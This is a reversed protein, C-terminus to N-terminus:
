KSKRVNVEDFTAILALYGDALFGEYGHCGGAWDRWDKSQGNPCFGQFEGSAFSQLMPYFIRRAAEVRGIQYLARITFVSFCATAGGNEYIQFGDSGDDKRPEGFRLGSDGGHISYDGPPIPVLNGPLGLNFNTYGVQEMKRLLNDMIRRADGEDVLGYSIAVGNVFTFWYDHLKGDVSRWGALVGTQPNLFTPLYAARLRAAKAAFFEADKRKGIHKAVSSFMICARFTLANAYADEHGFNITDWWNAPRLAATPRDGFNGTAPYEILGNGDTDAQMMERAWGALKEYNQQAWQWDKAGNVYNCAAVLLSPYSDSFTYPQAPHPGIDAESNTASYGAIGYAKTGALYRDLTMRVLDLCSLDKALPPAHLAVDSFKYVTFACADSSSNNALTQLRPNVQFINLYNRRFGDFRPDSQIGRLPPYIAVVELEYEVFPHARTAPPFGIKVFPIRAFRRADYDLKWDRLNCTIRISGMDPLHLVCPLATRREGPKMLGLLTAHNSRQDFALTFPPLNSDGSFRSRLKMVKGECILEWSPKKSSASTYAFTRTSNQRFEVPTVTADELLVPNQHVDGKGLSDVAFFSFAPATRSLGVAYYESEFDNSAALLRPHVFTSAMAALILSIARTKMPSITQTKMESTEREKKIHPLIVLLM